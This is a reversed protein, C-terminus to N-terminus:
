AAYLEVYPDTLFVGNPGGVYAYQGIEYTTGATLTVQYFDEDGITNITAITHPAGVTLVPNGPAVDKGGGAEDPTVILGTPGVPPKLDGMGDVPFATPFKEASRVHVELAPAGISLQDAYYKRDCMWCM